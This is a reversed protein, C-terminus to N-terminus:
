GRGGIVVVIERLPKTAVFNGNSTKVFKILFSFSEGPSKNSDYLCAFLEGGGLKYWAITNIHPDTWSSYENINLQIASAIMDFQKAPPTPLSNWFDAEYVQCYDSHSFLARTQACSILTNVFLLFILKKLTAKEFRHYRYGTNKAIFIM